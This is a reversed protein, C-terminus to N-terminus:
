LSLERKFAELAAEFGHEWEWLHKGSGKNQVHEKLRAAKWAEKRGIVSGNFQAFDKSDQWGTLFGDKYREHEFKENSNTGNWYNCHGEYENKLIEDRKGDDPLSKGKFAIPSSIAGNDNMQRFDWEGGSGAQFKFTWFFSGFGARENFLQGQKNGFKKVYDDRRSNANDRDWSRGDLVCSYEGVMIDAGKGGDNLNTLLDNNLDNIIQEPHKNKDNDSACRYCHHDIVVGINGNGQKEQVWKVWQDPYWGDSIIVPMLPDVERILSIAAAYYNRQRKPENSFVSENVIQIGSINDYQKLDHAIFKMMDCMQLQYGYDEWFDANGGEKEGSHADGNAGGPLGHVDVIVGIDRKGAEEIFKQKFISWANKYIKKAYKEFKTDSAFKGGDIEWYGVPIRVATVNHSQLWDWDAGSMYNNWHEEFKARAENEGLKKLSKKAAELEVSTDDIFPGHYIWKELVFCAGLNVGYNQRCQYIHNKSPSEGPGIITTPALKSAKSKLKVHDFM